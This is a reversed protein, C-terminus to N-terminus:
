VLGDETAQSFLIRSEASMAQVIRFVTKNISKFCAYCVFVFGITIPILPIKGSPIELKSKRLLGGRRMLYMPFIRSEESCPRTEINLDSM